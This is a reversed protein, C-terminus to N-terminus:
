ENFGQFLDFSIDQKYSEQKAEKVKDNPELHGILFPSNDDHKKYNNMVHNKNGNAYCYSCLHLCSNYTGIDNSLYCACYGKRAQMKQKIKLKSNISREYDELRMCGDIDIGYDKLWKEKSCLRLEMHHEKAIKSFEKAIYIKEEDTADKLEPHNRKLKDYLDIFGFVSLTTYGELKETIYKFTEIHRKVTYKENVIIPTYRFGVANKGVKSSLYKFDEIVQDITPVNPELDKEFGTISVYWFQGFPKLEDLYELMPRPNKTCFGIVDVVDPTLSFKTVLSPYYPNRVYVYGQRIRNMFWKSYFAPIDTRQGTNIIM